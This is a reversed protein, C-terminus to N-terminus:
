KLLMGLLKEDTFREDLAAADLIADLNDADNEIEKSFLQATQVFDGGLANVTLCAILIFKVRCQLDGDSIAQLWYREVFYRALATTKPDMRGCPECDLRNKWRQTLIELGRFFDLMERRDGDGAFELATEYASEASFTIEEQWDLAQQVHAAYILLLALAKAPPDSALIQLATERSSLLIAMDEQSYEPAEASESIEERVVEWPTTLLLRAAEPCSLELGLERFTGYDHSLRPFERCTRCLAEEGLEAHIRCLGDDRWMPCRGNCDRFIYEGDDMILAGSLLQGLKGPLALYRGAAAEDVQVQWDKCCSDTCAGAICRFSDYVTQRCIIM